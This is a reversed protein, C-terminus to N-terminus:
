SVKKKHSFKALYAKLPSITYSFILINPRLSIPIKKYEAPEFCCLKYVQYPVLIKVPFHKQFGRPGFFQFHDHSTIWSM